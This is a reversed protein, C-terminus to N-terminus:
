GVNMGRVASEEDNARQLMQRSDLNEAARREEDTGKSRCLPNPRKYTQKMSKDGM